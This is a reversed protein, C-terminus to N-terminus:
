PPPYGHGSSTSVPFAILSQFSSRSTKGDHQRMQMQLPPGRGLIHCAQMIPVLTNTGDLEEERRPVECLLAVNLVIAQFTHCFM